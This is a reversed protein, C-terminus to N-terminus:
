STRKLDTRQRVSSTRSATWPHGVSRAGPAAGEGPRAMKLLRTQLRGIRRALMVLNTKLYQARLDAKVAESVLDTALLRQLPTRAEDYRRTVRAGRRTKSVLKQQPSFFNVWLRLWGYLENLLELAAEGEFRGYGVSQRVVTWNKQEVFCNDNKRYPRTRTFTIENESCYRFLHDNIFESGNDSDIGLLPFPLCSEIGVLAEFVWRQAKNKVAQMETWGTAVDTVNLTQCFEGQPNGGDHAVLDIECFGPGSEDWEAFTRIPIQAKLLSGPKTGSRGKVQLRKRDPALVRDITAPSIVILKDKVGPDLYLEGHRELVSVIESLFPALRKGCPGGLVIWVKRLADVVAADYIVPRPKIPARPQDARAIARRAHRRTWGTLACLEDLIAGKETKSARAYRTAIVKTVARRESM